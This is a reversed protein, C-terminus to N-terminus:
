LPSGDKGHFSYSWPRDGLQIFACPQQVGRFDPRTAPRVRVSATEEDSEIVAKTARWLWDGDSGRSVDVLDAKTQRAYDGCQIAGLLTGFRDRLGMGRSEAIYRGAVCMGHKATTSIRLWMFGMGGFRVCDTILPIEQQVEFQLGEVSYGAARGIRYQHTSAALLIGAMGGGMLEHFHLSPPPLPNGCVLSGDAAVPSLHPQLARLRKGTEELEEDWLDEQRIDVGYFEGAFKKMNEVVAGSANRFIYGAGGRRIADGFQVLENEVISQVFVLSKNFKEQLFGTMFREGEFLAGCLVGQEGLHDTETEEGFTTGLIAGRYGGLATGYAKALALTGEYDPSTELAGILVAIGGGAEKNKWVTTGPGKPAAIGINWGGVLAQQLELGYFKKIGYHVSMGHFFMLTPRNSLSRLIAPIQLVQQDDPIGFALVDLMPIDQFGVIQFGEAAAARMSASGPDRGIIVTKVSEARLCRAQNLAQSGAGVMGVRKGRIPELAASEEEPTPNTLVERPPALKGPIFPIIRNPKLYQPVISRM